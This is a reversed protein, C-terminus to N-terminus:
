VVSKRDGQGYGRSAFMGRTLSLVFSRASNRTVHGIHGWFAKDFADANGSIVADVESFAYPHARLAGQGFVILTRTLINAGEVTVAVPMGFYPISMVNRPGMSLGQGGLVDMADTAARRGFETANYKTMATVVPPKVGQDLASITYKRLAEIYYVMGGVRSLPEEVGEFKGIPVGFQKRTNAHASLVRYALKVGGTGQAPLSIGRGAALSEMLMTWGKGANAVGGIIADELDSSCM